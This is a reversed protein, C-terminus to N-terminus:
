RGGTHDSRDEVEYEGEIFDGAPPKAQDQMHRRIKHRLWWVRCAVIAVLILAMSALILFAVFGFLLSVGVAVAAAFLTLARVFPNQAPPLAQM